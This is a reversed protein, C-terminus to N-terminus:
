GNIVESPLDEPAAIKYGVGRVTSLPLADGVKQRL